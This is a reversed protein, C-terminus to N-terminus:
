QTKREYIHWVFPTHIISGHFAHNFGQEVPQGTALVVFERKETNAETEVEAWIHIRGAQMGVHRVIAGVPMEIAEGWGPGPSRLEFKWIARM